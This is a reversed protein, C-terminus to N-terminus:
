AAAEAALGAGGVIINAIPVNARYCALFRQNLESTLLLGPGSVSKGIARRMALDFLAQNPGLRALSRQRAYFGSIWAVDNALQPKNSVEGGAVAQVEALVEAYHPPARVQDLAAAATIEVPQIRADRFGDACVADSLRRLCIEFMRDRVAIPLDAVDAWNEWRALVIRLAVPVGHGRLLSAFALFDDIEVCATPSALVVNLQLPSRTLASACILDCVQDHAGKPSLPSRLRWAMEIALGELRGRMALDGEGAAALRRRVADALAAGDADIARQFSQRADVVDLEACDDKQPEHLSWRGTAAEQRWLVRTEIQAHTWHAAGDSAAIANFRRIQQTLLRLVQQAMNPAQALAAFFQGKGLALFMCDEDARVEVLSPEGFLLARKGFHHGPEHHVIRAGESWTSAEGSVLLYLNDSVDGARVLAEGARVEVKRM